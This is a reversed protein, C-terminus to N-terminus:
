ETIQGYLLRNFRDQFIELLQEDFDKKPWQLLKASSRDMITKQRDDFRRFPNGRFANAEHIPLKVKEYHDVTESVEVLVRQTATGVRFEQLGAEQRYRAQAAPGRVCIAISIAEDPVTRLGDDPLERLYFLPQEVDSFVGESAARTQAAQRIEDLEKPPIPCVQFLLVRDGWLKAAAIYNQALRVATPLNKSHLVLLVDDARQQGFFFLEELWDRLADSLTTTEVAVTGSDMDHGSYLDVLVMSELTAAQQQLRVIGDEMPRLKALDQARTIDGASPDTSRRHRKRRQKEDHELRDIRNRISQAGSCGHARFIQRRLFQLRNIATTLLTEADSSEAEAERVTATLRNELLRIDADVAVNAPYENLSVSLPALVHHDIARKIPRAGYRPQFGQRVVEAVVTDDFKLNVSRYRLGERKHLLDLERNAVQTLADTGLPLFPVVRDIRNFFEPRVSKQIEAVFHHEDFETVAADERGLGINGRDFVETGLNSTMIIVSNRFDAVRGAADTLRGEGLVQLLLDFFRPHAKEFEDLLVVGFPQERVRSTLIGEDGTTGGVLRDVSNGDAYESMDIRVMRQPDRYLFEALAKSMETKGVGTPGVFLLSAIPRNPRALGAKVTAILNTVVKIADPQGLIRGGFWDSMKQLDLPTEDDLLFLPLGTEDAFARTVDTATLESDRAAEQLMNTLFRLPRGPSTSYTAYRRHLRIIESLADAQLVAGTVSKLQKAIDALILATAADDPEAIDIRAFGALVEPHSEELKSAQESTCEVVGCVEGRRFRPALFEAIGDDNAVSRGVMNLESLNGFHIIASESEAEACIKECREQWAGFGTMGSVIRAGTTSFFRRGGLGMENRRQFLATWAATKGVGSLGVLLVSRPRAATLSDAMQQLVDEMGVIRHQKLSGVDTAVTPLVSPENQESALKMFERATPYTAELEITTLSADVNRQLWVLDELSSDRQLRKLTLRIHEELLQSLSLSGTAVVDIDLEPVFGIRASNQEWTVTDFTLSVPDRWGAQKASPKLKVHIKKLKPNSVAHRAALDAPETESLLFTANTRLEDIVQRKTNAFAALGPYGIVRGTYSGNDLEACVIHLRLQLQQM